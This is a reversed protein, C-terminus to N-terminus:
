AGSGEVLAKALKIAEAQTMTDPPKINYGDKDAVYWKNTQTQATAYRKALRIFGNKEFRFEQALTLLDKADQLERSVNAYNILLREMCEEAYDVSYLGDCSLRTKIAKIEDDTLPVPLRGYVWSAM